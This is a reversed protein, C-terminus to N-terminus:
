LCEVNFVNLETGSPILMKFRIFMWKQQDKVSMKKSKKKTENIDVNKRKMQSNNHYHNVPYVKASSEFMDNLNMCPLM